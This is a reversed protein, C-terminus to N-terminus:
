CKKAQQSPNNPHLFCVMKDEARLTDLGMFLSVMIWDKVDGQPVWLTAHVMSADRCVKKRLKSM